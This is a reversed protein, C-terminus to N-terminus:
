EYAGALYGTECFFVPKPASRIFINRDVQGSNSKSNVYKNVPRSCAQITTKGVIETWLVGDQSGLLVSIDHGTELLRLQIFYGFTTQTILGAKFGRIPTDGIAGGCSGRHVWDRIGNMWHHGHKVHM